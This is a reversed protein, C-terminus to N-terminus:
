MGYQKRIPKLIEWAEAYSKVEPSNTCKFGVKLTANFTRGAKEFNHAQHMKQMLAYLLKVYRKRTM